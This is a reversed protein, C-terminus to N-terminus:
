IEYEFYNSSLSNNIFYSSITTQKELDNKKTNVEEGRKGGLLGSIYFRGILYYKPIIEIIM